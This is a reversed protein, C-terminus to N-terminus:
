HAASTAPPQQPPTSPTPTPKRVAPAPVPAARPAAAASPPESNKYLIYQEVAQLKAIEKTLQEQGATLLDISRVIQEQTAAIRDVNQRVADIDQSTTSLQQDISSAALPTVPDAAPVSAAGALGGPPPAIWALQPSMGAIAERVPGGFSYWAATVAVGIFFMLLLSIPSSSRRKLVRQVPEGPNAFPDDDLDDPNLPSSDATGRIPLGAPFDAQIPSPMASM